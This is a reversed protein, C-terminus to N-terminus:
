PRDLFDECAAVLPGLAESALSHGADPVVRLEGHPLRPVLRRLGQQVGGGEDLSGVLLLTPQEIAPALPLLSTGISDAAMGVYMAAFGPGMVEDFYAFKERLAAERGAYGESFWFRSQIRLALRVFPPFRGALRFARALWPHPEALSGPAWGVVRRVREPFRHALRLALAAGLSGGVLDVRPVGRADLFGAASEEYYAYDYHRVPKESYGKGPLDALLVRRGRALPAVLADYDELRATHGPLILVPLADAPAGRAPAVDVYRLRVGGVRVDRQAFHTAPM